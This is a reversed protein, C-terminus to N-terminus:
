RFAIWDLHLKNQWLQTKRDIRYIQVEFGKKTVKRLTAGFTDCDPANVAYRTTVIVRPVEAFNKSFNIKKPPMPNNGNSKGGVNITGFQMSNMSFRNKMELIKSNLVGAISTEIDETKKIMRGELSSLEHKVEKKNFYDKKINSLKSDVLKKTTTELGDTKEDTSVRLDSLMQNIEKKTFIEKKINKLGIDIKKTKEDASKLIKKQFDKNGALIKIAKEIFEDTRVFKKLNQIDKLTTKAEEHLKGAEVKVMDVKAIAGHASSLAKIYPDQYKEFAKYYAKQVVIDNIFFGAAGCVLAILFGPLAIMKLMYDRIALKEEANLIDKKSSGKISNNSETGMYVEKNPDEADGM